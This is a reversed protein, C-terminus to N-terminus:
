CLKMKGHLSPLGNNKPNPARTNLLSTLWHPPNLGVNPYRPSLAAEDERADEATEALVISHFTLGKTLANRGENLASPRWLPSWLDVHHCLDERWKPYFPSSRTCLGLFNMWLQSGFGGKKGWPFHQDKRLAKWSQDLPDTISRWRKRM